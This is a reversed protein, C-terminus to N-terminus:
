SKKSKECLVYQLKKVGVCLNVLGRKASSHGSPGCHSGCVFYVRHSRHGCHGHIGNTVATISVELAAIVVANATIVLCVVTVMSLVTAMTVMSVAIFCMVTIVVADMSVAPVMTVTLPGPKIVVAREMLGSEPYPQLVPCLGRRCHRRQPGSQSDM